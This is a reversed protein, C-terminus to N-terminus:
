KDKAGSAGRASRSDKRPEPSQPKESAAPIAIETQTERRMNTNLKEGDATGEGGTVYDWAKKATDKADRGEMGEVVAMPNARGEGLKKDPSAWAQVNEDLAAARGPISQPIQPNLQGMVSGESQVVVSPVSTDVTLPTAGAFGTRAQNKRHLADINAGLGERGEAFTEDLESRGTPLANGGLTTRPLTSSATAVGKEAAYDRVMALIRGEAQGMLRAATMGNRAAVKELLNPDAMLDRHVSFSDSRSRSGRDGVGHESRRTADTTQSSADSTSRTADSGTRSSQASQEAQNAAVVQQGTTSFTQQIRASEEEGHQTGTEKSRGHSASYTKASVAGLNLGAGFRSIPMRAAGAGKEGVSAQHTARYGAVASDIDEQSAGGKRLADAIRKEGAETPPGSRGASPAGPQTPDGGAIPQQGRGGGYGVGAQGGMYFQDQAGTAAQFTSRDASTRSLNQGVGYTGQEGGSRVISAASTVGQATGRTADRATVNNFTAGESHSQQAISGTGAIQTDHTEQSIEARSGREIAMSTLMRNQFQQLAMSGNPAMTGVNGNAYGFTAGGGALGLNADYKHMATSNVSATDLGVQGTSVNGGAMSAGVAQGASQFGTVMRDAVAMFGGQGMKIIAASLFPVLLVMYGIASLEDGLTADFTDSLQFPVGQALSLGAVKHKLYMMSLHNIVAFMVPWMGLWALTMMYGGVIRKAGDTSTVVMLVVVLPFLAYVIAELWNRIHPLTEQALLSLTANSGDAQRAAQAAGAMTQLEQIRGPDNLLAPLEAGADRWINNFMAQKMADSATSASSLIWDYSSGVAAAYMASATADSDARSFNQRGYFTQAAEIGADVRDKLIVAVNKCTDTTPTATLTNYTVFRAPSTDAFITNWTDTEGVVQSPTLIGDKIDYLTCEKFFQMLDARLGPDRIIVKNVNKLIRHGFAVDGKQLGLEDPVGFVTEYTRTAWGFALNSTQGVIALAFPVNDVTRPPELGTKDTLLVRAIPLNLLTVFILAQIFWTFLELHRNGAYGFIGITLAFLFVMKLLGTYGAGGMISAVGNFVYYLTEVNWYTAIEVDIM